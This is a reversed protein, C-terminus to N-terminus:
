AAAFRTADRQPSIVTCRMNRMGRASQPWRSHLFALTRAPHAPADLCPFNFRRGPRPQGTPFTILQPALLELSTGFVTPSPWLLLCQAAIAQSVSSPHRNPPPPRTITHITPRRPTYQALSSTNPIISIAWHPRYKHGPSPDAARRKRKRKRKRKPKSGSKLREATSPMRPKPGEISGSRDGKGAAMGAPVGGPALSGEVGDGGPFDRRRVLESARPRSASLM